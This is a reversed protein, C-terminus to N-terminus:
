LKTLELLCICGLYGGECDLYLIDGDGSLTKRHGSVPVGGGVEAGPLYQDQM